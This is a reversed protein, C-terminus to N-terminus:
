RKPHPQVRIMNQLKKWIKTASSKNEILPYRETDFLEHQVQIKGGESDAKWELKGAADSPDVV